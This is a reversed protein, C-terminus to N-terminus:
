TLLGRTPVKAKTQVESTTAPSCIVTWDAAQGAQPPYKRPPLMEPAATMVWHGSYQAATVHPTLAMRTLAMLMQPLPLAGRFCLRSHPSHPLPSAPSGPPWALLHGETVRKDGVPMKVDMECLLSLFSYLRERTDDHSVARGVQLSSTAVGM